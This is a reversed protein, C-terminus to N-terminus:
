PFGVFIRLVNLTACSCAIASFIHLAKLALCRVSVEVEPPIGVGWVELSKMQFKQQASLQASGYTTCTPQACSHGPGFSHDLWLGFYEFQGGM